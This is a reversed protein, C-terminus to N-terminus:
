SRPDARDLLAPIGHVAISAGGFDDVLLGERALVDRSDLLWTKNSATLEVVEPVLLRQIPIEAREDHRRSFREYLVREHLAHQDVVTM